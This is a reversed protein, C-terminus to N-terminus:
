HAPDTCHLQVRGPTHKLTFPSSGLSFGGPLLYISPSVTLPRRHQQVSACVQFLEQKIHSTQFEINEEQQSVAAEIYKKM